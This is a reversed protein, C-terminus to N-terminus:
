YFVEDLFLGQAPATIGAKQRNKCELIEKFKQPTIKGKGVNVVTGVINRVMHYLFGNGWFTFKLDNENIQEVSAQFITRIPHHLPSSGTARFSSFDHTGEIYKLANQMAEVNLKKRIYWSYKRQFPDLNDGQKVYYSYKKSKASHRASFEPPMEDASLVVIDDPLLSNLALKINQIPITGTTYFNIVQGRAHVGTDTRGSAALKDIKHGVLKELCKEIIQQIAVANNQRQFGHYNGGDYALSLKINRTM